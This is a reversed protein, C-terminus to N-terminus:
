DHKPKDVKILEMSGCQKDSYRGSFVVFMSAFKPSGKAGVFKIRQNLFVIDSGMDYCMRFWSTSVDAPLLMVTRNGKKSEEVAKRVWPTPNSYPPNCWNRKEWDPQALGDTEKTFWKACLTNENSAAVDCDFPGWSKEAFQFLWFPTGYSDSDPIIM